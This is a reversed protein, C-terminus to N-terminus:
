LFSKMNATVGAIIAVYIAGWVIAPLWISMILHRRAVQPMQEKYLVYFALGATLGLFAYGIYWWSSVSETREMTQLQVRMCYLTM